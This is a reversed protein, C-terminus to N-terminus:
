SSNPKRIVLTFGWAEVCTQSEEDAELYMRRSSNVTPENGGVEVSWLITRPVQAIWLVEVENRGSTKQVRSNGPRTLAAEPTQAKDIRRLRIKAAAGRKEKIAVPGFIVYRDAFPARNEDLLIDGVLACM